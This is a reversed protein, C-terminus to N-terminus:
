DIEETRGEQWKKLNEDTLEFIKFVDDFEPMPKGDYPNDPTILRVFVGDKSKKLHDSSALWNKGKDSLQLVVVSEKKPNSAVCGGTYTGEYIYYFPIKKRELLKLMKDGQEDTLEMCFSGEPFLGNKM